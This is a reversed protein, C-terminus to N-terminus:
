YLLEIEVKGASITRIPDIVIAVFPDEYLQHEMQTSVDIGLVIFIKNKIKNIVFFCLIIMIIM